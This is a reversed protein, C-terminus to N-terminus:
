PESLFELVTRLVTEAEELLGHASSELYVLKANPIGKDLISANEPPILIDRRGQLILTPAKIQSLRDYTDFKMIANLQRMYAENSIPAKLMQQIVLEALEPNNKMFDETVLLPIMIRAIEEPSLASRDTTLMELVDGSPLVSRLGGCSTSCLVLKEVKEPYNLVLEQAIMGGMSIGLAHARSIGLADMLGATDDAFLGISYEKDSVGTRGAGRNDFAVTKFEGSFGQIWRPDWWDVNGGLGAIMILPFGEGHVEYYMEIDNVKRM